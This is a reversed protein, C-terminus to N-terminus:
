HEVGVEVRDDWTVNGFVEGDHRFNVKTYEYFIHNTDVIAGESPPIKRVLATVSDAFFKGADIRQSQPVM